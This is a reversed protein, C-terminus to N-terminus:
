SLIRLIDILPQSNLQQKNFHVYLQMESQLCLVEDKSTLVCALKPSQEVRIPQGGLEKAANVWDNSDGMAPSPEVSILSKDRDAFLHFPTKFFVASRPGTTAAWGFPLRIRGHLFRVETGHKLRYVFVAIAPKYFIMLLAIISIFCYIVKRSKGM